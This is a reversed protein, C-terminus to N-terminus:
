QGTFVSMIEKVNEKVFIEFVGFLLIVWFEIGLVHVASIEYGGFQKHHNMKEGM